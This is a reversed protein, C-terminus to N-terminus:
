NSSNESEVLPNPREAVAIPAKRKYTIKVGMTGFTDLIEAFSKVFRADVHIM